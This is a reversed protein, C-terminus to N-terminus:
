TDQKRAKVHYGVTFRQEHDYKDLAHAAIPVLGGLVPLLGFWFPAWLLRVVMSSRLRWPQTSQLFRLSEQSYFAFSGANPDVSIDTFGQEPLFRRYWFPTFGGYYHHPEQHIGSGLPATLLLLGSPKLIRSFEHILKLPEAIHEMVETCLVVDFSADEVPIVTADCVYDIRGYAGQRLQDGSLQQFDQTRYECHDFLGRYPCSGAGVDLVRSGAPVLAAQTAIWADRNFLNFALLRSRKLFSPMM